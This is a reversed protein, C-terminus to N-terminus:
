LAFLESDTLRDFDSKFLRGQVIRYKEFKSEAFEKAFEATVTGADSLIKDGGAELIIDM